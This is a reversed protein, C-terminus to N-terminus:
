MTRWSGKDRERRESGLITEKIALMTLKVSADNGSKLAVAPWKDNEEQHGGM